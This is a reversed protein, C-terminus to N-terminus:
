VPKLTIRYWVRNRVQLIIKHSFAASSFAYKLYVRMIEKTFYVFTNKYSAFRFSKIKFVNARDRNQVAHAAVRAADPLTDKDCLAAWQQRCAAVRSSRQSMGSTHLPNSGNSHLPTVCRIPYPPCSRCSRASCCILFSSGKKLTESFFNRIPVAKRLMQESYVKLGLTDGLVFIKFYKTYNPKVAKASFHCM